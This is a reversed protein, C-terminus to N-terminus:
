YKDIKIAVYLIYFFLTSKILKKGKLYTKINCISDEQKLNQNCCRYFVNGKAIPFLLIKKYPLYKLRKQGDFM